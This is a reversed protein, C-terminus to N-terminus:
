KNMEDIQKIISDNQSQMIAALVPNEAQMADIDSQAVLAKRLNREISGKYSDIKQQFTKM